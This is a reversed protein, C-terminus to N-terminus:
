NEGEEFADLIPLLFGAVLGGAFGNNYLNVGGHIVGVNTALIFHLIGALIGIKYGYVGCLPALTTSFLVTIIIGTSSIDNGLILATFIVGIVIPICNKLHKWFASFGVVTFIGAIAPGNVIGGISIVYILCIIGMIGMNIFTVGYGVLFTYDTVVRGSYKFINKYQKIADKNIYIGVGILYVFMIVLTLI